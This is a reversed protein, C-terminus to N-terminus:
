DGANKVLDTRRYLRFNAREFIKGYGAPPDGMWTPARCQELIYPPRRSLAAPLDAPGRVRSGAQFLNNKDYKLDIPDDDIGTFVAVQALGWATTDDTLHLIHTVPTIRGASVESRLRDVLAFGDEGMTWRGDPTGVWYGIEARGLNFAWQESIAHENGDYDQSNEVRTWPFMLITLVAFLALPRSIRDHLLAFLLGAPFILIFPVWYDILKSILDSLMHREAPATVIPSLYENAIEVAIGVMLAVALVGTNPVSGREIFGLTLAAILGVSAFVCLLPLNGLILDFM